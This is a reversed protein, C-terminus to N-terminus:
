AKCNGRLAGGVMGYESNITELHYIIIYYSLLIITDLTSTDYHIKVVWLAFADLILISWVYSIVNNNHRKLIWTNSMLNYYTIHTQNESINSNSWQTNIISM